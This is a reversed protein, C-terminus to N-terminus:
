TELRYVVPDLDLSALLLAATGRALVAFAAAQAGAELGAGSDIVLSRCSPAPRNARLLPELWARATAGM